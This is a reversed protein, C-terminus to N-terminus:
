VKAIESWWLLKWKFMMKMNIRIRDIPVYHPWPGDIFVQCGVIIRVFAVANILQM